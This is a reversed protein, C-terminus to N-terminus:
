FGFKSNDDFNDFSEYIKLIRTDKFSIKDNKLVFIKEKGCIKGKLIISKKNTIILSSDNKAEIETDYMKKPRLIHNGEPAYTLYIYHDSPKCELNIQNEM